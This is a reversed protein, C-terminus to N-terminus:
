LHPFAPHVPHFPGDPEPRHIARPSTVSRPAPPTVAYAMGKTTLSQAMNTVDGKPGHDLERPLPHRAPHPPKGREPRGDRGQRAPIREASTRRAPPVGGRTDNAHDFDNTDGGSTFAALLNGQIARSTRPPPVPLEVVPPSDPCVRTTTM